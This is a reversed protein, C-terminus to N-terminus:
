EILCADLPASNSDIDLDSSLRYTMSAFTWWLFGSRTFRGRRLQSSAAVKREKKWEGNRLPPKNGLCECSIRGAIALAAGFVAPVEGGVGADV